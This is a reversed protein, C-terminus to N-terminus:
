CSLASRSFEGETRLDVGLSTRAVTEVRCDRHGRAAAMVSVGVLMDTAKFWSAPRSFIAFTHRACRVRFNAATWMISTWGGAAAAALDEEGSVGARAMWFSSISLSLSGKRRLGALIVAAARDLRGARPRWICDFRHFDGYVIM